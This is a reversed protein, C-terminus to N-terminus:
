SFDGMSSNDGRVDVSDKEFDNQSFMKSKPPEGVCSFRRLCVNFVCLAPQKAQELLNKRCLFVEEFFHQSCRTSRIRIAEHRHCSGPKHNNKQALLM